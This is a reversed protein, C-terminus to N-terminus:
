ASAFVPGSSREYRKIANVVVEGLRADAVNANITINYVNGMGTKGDLPIVAEDYRGEGINAFIGGPQAKVIGGEALRPLSVNPIEAINVGITLPGSFPTAPLNVKLRNLGRIITNLGNVFFNIFSEWIGIYGNVIIRFFEGVKKLVEVFAVGFEATRVGLEELAAMFSAGVGPMITGFWWTFTEGVATFSRKFFDMVNAVITRGTETNTLFWILASTLVALLGVILGIPNAALAANFLRVAVAAVNTAVAQAILATKSAILHVTNTLLAGAQMFYTGNLLNGVVLAVKAAGAQAYTAGAAGYSAAAFGLQVAQALLMVTRFLQFAKVAGYVGVVLIALSDGTGALVGGLFKVIPTIVNLIAVLIPVAIQALETILPLFADALVSVLEIISPAVQIFADILAPLLQTAVQYGIALLLNFGQLALKSVVAIVSDLITRLEPLTSQMDGFASLIPDVASKVIMFRNTLVIFVSNLSELFPVIKPLSAIIDEFVPNLKAGLAQGMRTAMAEVPEMVVIIQRFFEGFNPYIDKILNAGTRAIAANMNAFAGATSDGMKQAAGGLVNELAEALMAADIAGESALDRVEAASVGAVEALAQFIPIGRDALQTLEMTYARNATTVKNLIAGMENLPVGAIAAADATLSLYKALEQGPKVGAAVASAAITAAEGLGFATGKVASLANKMVEEVTEASNGLGRLKFEANEIDQLRGFGKTIAFGVGAIAAGAAVAAGAIGVRLVKELGGLRGEFGKIAREADKIGKDDSKFVIPLTIGKAAM